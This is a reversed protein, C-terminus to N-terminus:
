VLVFEAVGTHSGYRDGKWSQKLEKYIYIAFSHFVYSVNWFIFTLIYGCENPFTLKLKASDHILALKARSPSEGTDIFTAISCSSKGKALLSFRAFM